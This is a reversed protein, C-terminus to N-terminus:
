QRRPWRRAKARTKMAPCNVGGRKNKRQRLKVGDEIRPCDGASPCITRSRGGPRKRERAAANCLKEEADGNRSNNM